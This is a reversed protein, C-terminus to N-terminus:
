GSTDARVFTVTSTNLWRGVRAVRWGVSLWVWARHNALPSNSWWGSTHASPPLPQGVLQGIDAFSLVVERVEPPQDGLFRALPGYKFRGPM